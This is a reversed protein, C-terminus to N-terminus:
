SRRGNRCPRASDDAPVIKEVLWSELDRKRFRICRASIRVFPIKRMSIFHYLTGISLRSWAAVARIDLLSDSELNSM